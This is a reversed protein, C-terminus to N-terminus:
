DLALQALDGAGTSGCYGGPMLHLNELLAVVDETTDDDAGRLVVKKLPEELRQALAASTKAAAAPSAVAFLVRNVDESLELCYVQAHGIRM